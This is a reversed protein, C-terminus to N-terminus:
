RCCRAQWRLANALPSRSFVAALANTTPLLQVETDVAVADDDALSQSIRTNIVAVDAHAKHITHWALETSDDAVTGVVAARQPVSCVASARLDNHWRDLSGLDSTTSTPRSIAADSANAFNSSALPLLFRAIVLLPPCLVREHAVLPNKTIPQM